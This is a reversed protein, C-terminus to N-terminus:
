SKAYQNFNDVIADVEADYTAKDRLIAKNFEDLESKLITNAGRNPSYKMKLRLYSKFKGKMVRIIYAYDLLPTGNQGLMLGKFKIKWATLREDGPPTHIDIDYVPVAPPQSPTSTIPTVDIM